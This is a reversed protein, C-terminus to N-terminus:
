NSIIDAKDNCTLSLIYRVILKQLNDVIPVEFILSDYNNENYKRIISSINVICEIIKYQHMMKQYKLHPIKMYFKMDKIPSSIRHFDHATVNSEPSIQKLQQYKQHIKDILLNLYNMFFLIHGDVTEKTKKKLIKLFTLRQKLAEDLNRTYNGSKKELEYNDM